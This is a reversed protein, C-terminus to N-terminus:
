QIPPPNDLIHGIDLLYIQRGVGEHSSDISVTRGDPTFRPHLDIRYIALRRSYKSM